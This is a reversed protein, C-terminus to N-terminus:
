NSDNKPLIMKLAVGCFIAIAVGAVFAGIVNGGDIIRTITVGGFIGVALTLAPDKFANLIKQKM